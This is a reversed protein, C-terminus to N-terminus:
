MGTIAKVIYAVAFGLYNGVANGFVGMVIGVGILTEWGSAAALAAASSQSGIAAQMSLLVYQWKIKFIRCVVLHIALSGIVAIACLIAMSVASNAFEVLDIGVGVYVLYFLTLYLGLDGKGRIKKIPQTQALIIAITTIFIVRFTTRLSGLAATNLNTLKDGLFFSVGYIAYGIVILLAIDVISWEKASLYGSGGEVKLDADSVSYPWFKNWKAIGGLSSGAWMILIIFPTYIVYDAANAAGILSQSTNLGAAISNLNASGGTYTGVFMGAVKWGEPGIGPAFVIGGLITLVCVVACAILMAAFPQFSLQRMKKLDTDLLLITISLYILNSGMFGYVDHSKPIVRINSLILAGIICVLAPGLKRLVPKKAGWLAFAILGTCVALVGPISTILAGEM